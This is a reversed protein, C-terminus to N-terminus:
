FSQEMVKINDYRLLGIQRKEKENKKVNETIVITQNYSDFLM